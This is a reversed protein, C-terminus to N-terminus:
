DFARQNKAPISRLELGVWDNINISFGSDSFGEYITGYENILENKVVKSTLRPLQYAKVLNEVFAEIPLDGANFAKKSFKLYTVKHTQPDAEVDVLTLDSAVGFILTKQKVTIWHREKDIVASTDSGIKKSLENAATVADDFQMGIQFGKIKITIAPASSPLPEQGPSSNMAILMLIATLLPALSQPNSM